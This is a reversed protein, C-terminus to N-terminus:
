VVIEKEMEALEEPSFMKYEGLAKMINAKTPENLGLEKIAERLKRRRDPLCECPRKTPTGWTAQEEPVYRVKQLIV